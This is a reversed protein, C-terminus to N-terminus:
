FKVNIFTPFTPDAVDEGVFCILLLSYPHQEVNKVKLIQISLSISTTSPGSLIGILM